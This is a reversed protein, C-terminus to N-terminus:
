PLGSVGRRIKRRCAAMPRFADVAEITDDSKQCQRSWHFGIANLAKVRDATLPGKRYDARCRTAFTGDGTVTIVQSEAWSREPFVITGKMVWSLLRCAFLM